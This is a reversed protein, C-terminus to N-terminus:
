KKLHEDFKKSIIKVGFEYLVNYSITRVIPKSVSFSISRLFFNLKKTWCFAFTKPKFTPRLIKVAGFRFSVLLHSRCNYLWFVNLFPLKTVEVPNCKPSVFSLVFKNGLTSFPAFFSSFPFYFSVFFHSSSRSVSAVCKLKEFNQALWFLLRSSHFEARGSSYRPGFGKFDLYKSVTEYNVKAFM